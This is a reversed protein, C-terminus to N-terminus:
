SADYHIVRQVLLRSSVLTAPSLRIVRFVMVFGGPAGLRHKRKMLVDIFM